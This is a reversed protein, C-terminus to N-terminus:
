NIIGPADVTYQGGAIELKKNRYDYLVLPRAAAGAQRSTEEGAKHWYDVLKFDDMGKRTRYTISGKVREGDVILPPDGRKFEHLRGLEMKDRIWLPSDMGLGKLNVEQDGGRLYLQKGVIKGTKPDKESSSLYVIKKPDSTNFNLVVVKKTPTDVVLRVLPGIEMLHKHVHMPEVVRRQTTAKRGHFKESLAAADEAPNRRNQKRKGARKLVSPAVTFGRGREPGTEMRILITEGHGPQGVGTYINQVTAREGRFIVTEGLRLNRPNRKAKSSGRSVEGRLNRAKTGGSSKCTNQRMYQSRLKAPTQDVIEQAVKRPMSSRASGSLVAQALRYQAASEAPNKAFARKIAYGKLGHSRAYTEAAAKSKFHALQSSGPGAYIGFGWSPNGVKALTAKKFREQAEIEREMHAKIKELQAETIGGKSEREKAAQIKDRSQDIKKEAAAIKAEAAKEKARLEQLALREKRDAMAEAKREKREKAVDRHYTVKKDTLFSFFGRSQAAQAM